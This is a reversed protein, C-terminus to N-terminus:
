QKGRHAEEYAKRILNACYVALNEGEPKVRMLWYLQDTDLHRFLDAFRGTQLLGMKRIRQVAYDTAGLRGRREAVRPLMKANVLRVIRRTVISQSLGLEAGIQKATKGQLALEIIREQTDDSM